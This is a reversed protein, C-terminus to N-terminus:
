AAVKMVLVALTSSRNATQKGLDFLAVRESAFVGCVVASLPCPRAARRVQIVYNAFPHQCLMELTSGDDLLSGM